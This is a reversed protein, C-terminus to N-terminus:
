RIKLSVHTGVGKKSEFEGSIGSLSLRYQINALGLGQKVEHVDFGIGNDSVHIEIEGNELMEKLIPSNDLINQKSVRVNELAVKEILEGEVIENGERFSNVAPKIKSLLTTINGLETNSCAATVAGCKTHGLVAVLKSGAVKCGYEISGLIDDNVVNGAVKVNFVDGIGLDYILETPVRSDICSLIVGFPFQGTSTQIVQEKLNRDVRKSEVFRANGEKLVTLADQPTMKNQLEKTLTKM